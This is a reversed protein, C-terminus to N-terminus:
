GAGQQQLQAQLEAIQRDKPGQLGLAQAALLGTGMGGLIGVEDGILRGIGRGVHEGTIPTPSGTSAGAVLGSMQDRMQAIWPNGEDAVESLV